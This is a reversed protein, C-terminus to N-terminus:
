RRPSRASPGPQPAQQRLEALLEVLQDEVTTLREKLTANDESLAVVKETLEALTEPSDDPLRGSAPLVFHGVSPVAKIWKKATLYALAKQVTAGAFEQQAILQRQPPLKADVPYVGDDIAKKLREVMVLYPSLGGVHERSM